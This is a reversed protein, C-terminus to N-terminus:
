KELPKSSFVQAYSVHLKNVSLFGEPTQGRQQSLLQGVLIREACSFCRENIKRAVPDIDVWCRRWHGTISKIHTDPHIEGQPM